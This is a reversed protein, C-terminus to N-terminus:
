IMKCTVNAVSLPQSRTTKNSDEFDSDFERSKLTEPPKKKSEPALLLSTSEYACGARPQIISPQECMYLSLLKDTILLSVFSDLFLLHQHEWLAALINCFYGPCFNFFKVFISRTLKQCLYKGVALSIYPLLLVNPDHQRVFCLKMM